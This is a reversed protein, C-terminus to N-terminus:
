VGASKLVMAVIQWLNLAWTGEGCIWRRQLSDTNVSVAWWWGSQREDGLARLWFTTVSAAQM